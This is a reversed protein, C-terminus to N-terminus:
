EDGKIEEHLSAAYYIVYHAAQKAYEPHEMNSWQVQYGIHDCLAALGFFAPKGAFLKGLEKQTELMIEGGPDYENILDELSDNIAPFDIVDGMENEEHNLM